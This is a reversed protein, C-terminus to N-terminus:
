NETSSTLSLLERCRNKYWRGSADAKKDVEMYVVPFNMATLAAFSMFALRFPLSSSRLIRMTVGFLSAAIEETAATQPRNNAAKTMLYTLVASSHQYVLSFVKTGDETVDGVLACTFEGTSSSSVFPFEAIFPHSFWYMPKGETYYSVGNGVLDSFANLTVYGIIASAAVAAGSAVLGWGSAYAIVSPVAYVVFSLTGALKISDEVLDDCHKKTAEQRLEDNCIPLITELPSIEPKRKEIGQAFALNGMLLSLVILVHKM